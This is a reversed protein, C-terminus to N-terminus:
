GVEVFKVKSFAIFYAYHPLFYPTVPFLPRRIGAEGGPESPSTRQAVRSEHKGYNIM